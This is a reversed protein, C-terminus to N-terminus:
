LRMEDAKPDKTHTDSPQQKSGLGRQGSSSIAKLTTRVTQSTKSEGRDDIIDKFQDSAKTNYYYRVLIKVIVLIHVQTPVNSSSGIYCNRLIDTTKPLASVYDILALARDGHRHFIITIHKSMNMMWLDNLHYIFDMFAKTPYLAKGHLKRKFIGREIERIDFNNNQAVESPSIILTKGGFFSPMTIKQEGYFFDTVERKKEVKTLHSGLVSGQSYLKAKTDHDYIIAPFSTSWTDSFAVFGGKSDASARKQSDPLFISAIQHQTVSDICSSVLLWAINIDIYSPMDEKQQETVHKQSISQQMADVFWPRFRPIVLRKSQANYAAEKSAQNGLHVGQYIDQSLAWLKRGLLVFLKSLELQLNMDTYTLLIMIRAPVEFEWNPRKKMATEMVMVADKLSHDLQQLEKYDNSKSFDGVAAHKGVNLFERIGDELAYDKAEQDRAAKAEEETPKKTTSKRKSGTPIPAQGQNTPQVVANSGDYEDIDM